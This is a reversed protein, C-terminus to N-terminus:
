LLAYWAARFAFSCLMNDLFIFSAMDDIIIEEATMIFRCQLTRLRLIQMQSSSRRDIVDDLLFLRVRSM